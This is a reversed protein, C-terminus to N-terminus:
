EGVMYLYDILELIRTFEFDNLSDLPPVKLNHAEVGKMYFERFTMDFAEIDIWKWGRYYMSMKMDLCSKPIFGLGNNIAVSGDEGTEIDLYKFMEEYEECRQIKEAMELEEEEIEMTKTREKLSNDIVRNMSEITKEKGQYDYLANIAARVLTKYESRKM